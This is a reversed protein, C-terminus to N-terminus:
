PEAPSRSPPSSKFGATSGSPSNRRRERHCHRRRLAPHARISRGSAKRECDTPLPARCRAPLSSFSREPVCAPKRMAQWIPEVGIVKIGHKSLKIAAAVGSIIGGRRRARFGNRSGASKSFRWDWRGQGAIIQLDNYPPVIVYGHQAALEEAKVQARRQGPRCYRHRAWRRRLRANSRPLM